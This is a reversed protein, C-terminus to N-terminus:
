FTYMFAHTYMLKAHMRSDAIQACHLAICVIYVISYMRICAGTMYVVQARIHVELHARIRLTYPHIQRM